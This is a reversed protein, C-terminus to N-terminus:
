RRRRIRGMRRAACRVAGTRADAPYYCSILLLENVHLGLDGEAKVGALARCSLVHPPCASITEIRFRLLQPLASSMARQAYMPAVADGVFVVHDPM